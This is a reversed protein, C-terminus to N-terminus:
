GKKSEEGKAGEEPLKMEMKAARKKWREKALQQMDIQADLEDTIELGLITEIVDELTVIGEMGGYEDIVLAIQEKKTIMWDYFRLITNHEYCCTIPRRISKLKINKNDNALQLLIDSKLVFGTIHDLSDEYIPIRSYRLFDKNKFFENLTLNEDAGLVVTRPTMISRVKISRMKILNNIIKSENTEFVGEKEGISTMAAIEERSITQEKGSATIFHTIFLAIQLVPYTIYIYVQAVYAVPICLRRWFHIGITKPIIESCILIAATMIGSALGFYQSGFVINTQAGVGAAGLTNAMTNLILIATTARETNQKLKRLLRGGRSKNALTEAYSTSTSLMTAEMVSCIFSLIIAGFFFLLLLTM